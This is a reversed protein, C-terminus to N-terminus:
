GNIGLFSRLKSVDAPPPVSTIAKIKRESTHIGERSVVHGFYEVSEQFFKCKQLFGHQRISEFVATLNQLHEEDTSGTILIDDMYCVVKPLKPLVQEIIQQFIASASAIRYGILVIYLTRQTNIVLYTMSEDELEIQLYAEFLDLKSFHQGNNM